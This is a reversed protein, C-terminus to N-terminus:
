EQWYAEREHFRAEHRDFTEKQRQLEAPDTTTSMEVLALYPQVMFFISPETEALASQRQSIHDYVPGNIRYEYLVWLSLGLVASLGLASFLILGYLKTKITANRFGLM